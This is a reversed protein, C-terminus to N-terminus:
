CVGNALSKLIRGVAKARGGEQIGQLEGPCGEREQERAWVIGVVQFTGEAGVYM